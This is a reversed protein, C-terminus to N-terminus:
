AAGHVNGVTSVVVFRCGGIITVLVRAIYWAKGTTEKSELSRYLKAIRSQWKHEGQDNMMLIM